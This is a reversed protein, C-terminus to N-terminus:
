DFVVVIKVYLINILAGLANGHLGTNWVPSYQYCQMLYRHLVILLSDHLLQGRLTLIVSYYTVSNVNKDTVKGM